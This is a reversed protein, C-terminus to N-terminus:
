RLGYYSFSKIQQFVEKFQIKDDSSFESPGFMGLQGTKASVGIDPRGIFHNQKHYWEEFIKFLYQNDCYEKLFIYMELAEYQPQRLYATPNEPDNFALFKKTLPRYSAVIKKKEQQYFLNLYTYFPFDISAQKKKAM